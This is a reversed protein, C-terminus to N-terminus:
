RLLRSPGTGTANDYILDFASSALSVYMAIVNGRYAWGEGFGVSALAEASIGLVCPDSPWSYGIPAGTLESVTFPDFRGTVQRLGLGYPGIKRAAEQQWKEMMLSPNGEGASWFYQPTPVQHYGEGASYRWLSRDYTSRHFDGLEMSGLSGSLVLQDAGQRNVKAFTGKVTSGTGEVYCSGCFNAQVDDGLQATLLVGWWALDYRQWQNIQEQSVGWGLLEEETFMGTPDVFRTPNNYVYAYRNLAQPKGPSPVVTDASIFRGVVPDYYRAGYYYLGTGTDLRQSTFQYDTPVGGSRTAGYPYYREDSIKAGDNRQEVFM